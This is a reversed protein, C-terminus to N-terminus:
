GWGRTTKAGGTRRRDLARGEAREAGCFPQMSLTPRCRVEERRNRTRFGQVLPQYPAKCIMVFRRDDRRIGARMFSATSRCDTAGIEEM